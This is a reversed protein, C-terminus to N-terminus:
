HSCCIPVATEPSSYECLSPAFSTIHRVECRHTDSEAACALGAALSKRRTVPPSQVPQAPRSSDLKAAPGASTALADRGKSTGPVPGAKPARCARHPLTAPQAQLPRPAAKIDDDEGHQQLQTNHLSKRRTQAGNAALFARAPQVSAAGSTLATGSRIEASDPRCLMAAAVHRGGIFNSNRTKAIWPM